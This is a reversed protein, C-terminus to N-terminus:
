VKKLVAYKTLLSRIGAGAFAVKVEQGDATNNVSVVTGEGWKAHSVKEGATFTTSNASAEKPMFSTKPQLFWNANTTRKEKQPAVQQTVARQAQPRKFEHILNRPVEKLFRSPPYSVTHGFVTRMRAHSLFLTREARTIGVYCLRREEEIEEEDMLTRAHPFIGEEMGVLFVVPFELGKASHLTMLTIAEEGLEADDIDSVLAVRGLFNELNDEEEGKSFDEAVSLLEKLNEVRSQDQASKSNELEELYGTKTMVNDILQKVPVEGSNAEGMLEFIISSLEELKGVFRSSLGPVDGSASVVDFLNMNNEEAYAQLKALTADGIGRR